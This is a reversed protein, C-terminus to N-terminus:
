KLKEVVADELPGNIPKIREIEEIFLQDFYMEIREPTLRWGMVPTRDVIITTQYFCPFDPVICNNICVDAIAARSEVSFYALPKEANPIIDM